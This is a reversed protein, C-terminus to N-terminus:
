SESRRWGFISKSTAKRPAFATQGTLQPRKLQSQAVAKAYNAGSYLQWSLVFLSLVVMSLRFLRQEIVSVQSIGHGYTEPDVLVNRVM